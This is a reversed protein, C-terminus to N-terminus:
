DVFRTSAAVAVAVVERASREWALSTGFCNTGIGCQVYIRTKKYHRKCLSM